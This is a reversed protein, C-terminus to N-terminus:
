YRKGQDDFVYVGQGSEMIHPGTKRHAVANTYPHLLAEVDRTQMNTLRDGDMAM